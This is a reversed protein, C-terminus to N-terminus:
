NVLGKLLIFPVLLKSSHQESCKVNSYGCPRDINFRSHETVRSQMHIEQLDLITAMILRIVMKFAPAYEFDISTTDEGWGTYKGFSGDLAM